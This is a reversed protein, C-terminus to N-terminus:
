GKVGGAFGQIIHRQLAFYGLLIPVSSIVLAAFVLPWDASYERVFGNIRVPVTEQGSGSLFLLAIFFNNWIAILNLIAVTGLAPRMLPIIISFFTRLPGAGDLAAAEEFDRPTERLFTTLIFIAFPMAGGVNIIIVGWPSGVLGLDRISAFLPLVGLQGPIVLGLMLLYFAGRSLRSTLRALPFAALSALLLIIAVAVIAIFASNGLAPGLRGEEWAAAYNGFTYNGAIEFAGSPNGKAKLSVNVLAMLPIFSIVAVVWLLIELALTRSTYKGIM